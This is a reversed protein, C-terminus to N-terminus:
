GSLKVLVSALSTFYLRRRGDMCKYGRVSRRGEDVVHSNTMVMAQLPNFTLTMSWPWLWPDAWHLWVSRLWRCITELSCCYSFVCRHKEFLYNLKCEQPHSVNQVVTYWHLVDTTCIVRILWHSGLLSNIIILSQQVIFLAVAAPQSATHGVDCWHDLHRCDTLSQPNLRRYDSRTSRRLTLQSYWTRLSPSRRRWFIQASRCLCWM